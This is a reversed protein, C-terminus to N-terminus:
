GLCVVTPPVFPSRDGFSPGCVITELVGATQLPRGQQLLLLVAGPSDRRDGRHEGARERSRSHRLSKNMSKSAHVRPISELKHRNQPTAAPKFHLFYPFRHISSWMFVGIILAYIAVNPTCDAQRESFGGRETQCVARSTNMPAIGRQAEDPSRHQAVKLCNQGTLDIM